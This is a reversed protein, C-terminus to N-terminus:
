YFLSIIIVYDILIIIYVTSKSIVLQINIIKM